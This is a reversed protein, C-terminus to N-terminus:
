TIAQNYASLMRGQYPPQYEPFPFNAFSIMVVQASATTPDVSFSRIMMPVGDFSVSGVEFSVLLFEGLDRLLHVWSLSTNVYELGASYFRVFEELQNIVDSEIYLNPFDIAKAIEKGSKTVSNANTKKVTQRMTKDVVPTYAYFAAGANFYNRRDLEPRITSEIVHLQSVRPILTLQPFDEPHLTTLKFKRNKAIFGDLRVQKLLGIAAELATQKDNGIWVRSKISAIASQPPTNKAEIVSWSEDFDASDLGGLVGLIERAQRVPNDYQLGAYPVKVAIVAVDGQQYAYTVSGSEGKLSSVSVVWYGAAVQPAAAFNCELLSDSRKIYCQSINDPTYTGISFVFFGGGVNYGVIGGFFNDPARTLVKQGDIETSTTAITNVGTEWDGLVFPIMKGISDQPASPFDVSNILPLPVTKNLSEFEDRARLRISKSGREVAGEYHVFGRFITLYNASDNGAGARLVVEEGFFSVYKEGGILYENYKGDVNSIEIEFESFTLSPALLESIKREVTPVKIRGEYFQGGVYIPKDSLRLSGGEPLSVTCIFNIETEQAISTQDLFTQDFTTANQYYRRRMDAVFQTM